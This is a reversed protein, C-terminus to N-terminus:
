RAAAERRLSRKELTVSPLRALVRSPRLRHGHRKMKTAHYRWFAARKRQLAGEALARYWQDWTASRLQTLEDHRLVLPAYREFHAVESAIGTKLPRLGTTVQGESIRTVSLVRPVFGFDHHVLLRCCVETDAHIDEEDYFRPRERVVDARLMTWTPSGFVWYGHGTKAVHHLYARLVKSGREVPGTLPIDVLFEDDGMLARAGIVATTPHAEGVAVMEMLCEPMLWDDAHVVKCYSANDDLQAMSRNWSKMIPVHDRHTVVTIRADTAAYGAAVAATDDTSANDSVTLLWNTYTQAQVSEIATALFEAGNYVPLIVHVLPETM